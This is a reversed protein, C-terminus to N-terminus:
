RARKRDDAEHAAHGGALRGFVAGSTLGSGGPYNGSFLGGVMEGAAYLGPLRAGQADLVQASEDVHLGGFTFTVGCGVAYGYYPPTDLPMAWNSKPPEVRAARGDKVAPDFPVDTISRNFQEVTAALGDPDIGLARALEPLSDAEAKTIPHSEYEEKRLLPRTKADFLQFARGGDQGLIERGYKAYTYNRFDAGEDVFRAGRTNVVIGIPYSQRTLQNTLERDGGAPDAGADWAVSHCSSWDGHPAAGAALALDLVDGTNTRCGRVLAQGWGPGLYQERREPDSEFGGAALVVAGAAVAHEIGDSGRYRVGRVAAGSRELGTVEAGHRVEIGTARAAAAHQAILGKGGDVTGFFLGGSFMWKGRSLYSQREYMLRWRVGKGALWRVTDASRSVLIKTLVPDCRGGTVRRMDDEFESEPYPPVVTDALRDTTAPDLLDVVDEIRDFPFRFAGATYFSNGGAEEEPAKELLLVRAGLEAAAHAASFGANGGGVVVVDIPGNWTQSDTM